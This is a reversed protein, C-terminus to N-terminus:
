EGEETRMVTNALITVARALQYVMDELEVLRPVDSNSSARALEERVGEALKFAEAARAHTVEFRPSM